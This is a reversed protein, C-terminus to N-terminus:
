ERTIFEDLNLLVRSVGVWAAAETRDVGEPPAPLLAASASSDKGLIELQQDFYSKIRQKERSSPKRGLCLEFAYDIRDGDSERLTRVALGQAAELFVPDNLLNLSQLPTNSRSRRSCATNSDPADFTMLMPYPATRQFLIYLGRRYRQPGQTEAWKVSNAYGLEAVGAPQPPRVSPGGIDTNLLGSASLASDRILEASLRLRAQRSILTNEPDRALLEKRVNSSQRYAASMVIQKHMRKMSWGSERFDAAMWDLLEPHTPKEGQTGFDDSTRVLGRGFFEQWMRNVVVRSTLPNEASSLWRSFGLRDPLPKSTLIAPPAAGVEPGKSKYDGGLAIYMKAPNGDAKVAMAETIPALPPDIAALRQRVEKLRGALETDRTFDPGIVRLFRATMREAQRRNRRDIPIALLKLANDIGAKFETVQFDWELNEGPHDVAQKLRAEYKAQWGLVEYDRLLSQRKWEYDPLSRMYPGVEGPMPADIDDEELNANYAFMSYYDRHSIPDFKHNHCQACGVTLGLFVTSITNTRNVNQEFRAEARDVGAERNTLVNRNFGTAVKQNVAANPLLDGALQETTFQDFPMDANLAEIVWQRYRWAWPRVLDKEYGDSDAYRGLDLWQRAWKEGYHPSALLRDVMREYADPRNDAFFQRVEAPSPPLGTLDLSARRILISKSAEPSPEINENELRSVVFLDIPNRIWDRRNVDPLVPKRVPQFAWHTSRVAPAQATTTDIKAGAAIWARVATLEGESLRPGAPPMQFGKKLSSIRQLLPSEDPKGPVVLSRTILTAPEDLRLGAMQQSPGHCAVCRTGFVPQIERVYDAGEVANLLLAALGLKRVLTVAIRM